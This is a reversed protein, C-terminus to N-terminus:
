KEAHALLVEAREKAAKLQEGKFLKAPDEVWDGTLAEEQEPREILATGEENFLVKPYKSTAM